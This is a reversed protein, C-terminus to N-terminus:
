IDFLGGKNFMALVLTDDMESIRLLLSSKLFIIIAKLLSSLLVLIDSIM